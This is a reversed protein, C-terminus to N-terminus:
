NGQSFKVLNKKLKKINLANIDNMKKIEINKMDVPMIHSEDDNNNNIANSQIVELTKKNNELGNFDKLQKKLKKITYYKDGLLFLNNVNMGTDLKSKAPSEEEKENSTELNQGSSFDKENFSKNKEKKLILHFRNWVKLKLM